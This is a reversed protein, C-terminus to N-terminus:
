PKNNNGSNYNNSNNNNNGTNTGGGFLKNYLREFWNGEPDKPDIEICTVQGWGVIERAKDNCTGDEIIYLNNQYKTELAEIQEETMSTFDIDETGLAVDEGEVNAYCQCYKNKQCSDLGLLMLAMVAVILTRKM